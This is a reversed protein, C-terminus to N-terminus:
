RCATSAGRGHQVANAVLNSFVQLLRDRTGRASPTARRARALPSWDPHADDLEDMVQRPGAGSRRQAAALPIGAGVRVRTFDLLQDIMRAMREGSTMIRSLPRSLTARRRADAGAAGRDHDGGLPNRLDHGLMGTFMENFRVTQQLEAM